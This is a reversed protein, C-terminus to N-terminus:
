MGSFHKASVTAHTRVALQVGDMASTLLRALGILERESELAARESRMNNLCRRLAEREATPPAQRVAADRRSADDGGHGPAM